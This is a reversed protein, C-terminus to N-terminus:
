GLLRRWWPKRAEALLERTLDRERDVAERLLGNVAREREAELRAQETAARWREAENRAQDLEGRLEALREAHTRRLETVFDLTSPSQEAKSATQEPLESPRVRVRAKGDNGIVTPWGARKARTRAGDVTIGLREGLEAYTLVLEAEGQEAVSAEQERIAQGFARAKVPRACAPCVAFLEGTHWAPQESLGNLPV